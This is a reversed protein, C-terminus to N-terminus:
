GTRRRRWGLLGLGLLGSGLLLMSPPLPTHAILQGNGGAFDYTLGDLYDNDLLTANYYINIADGAPGFINNVVNPMTTVDAGVLRQVYLAGGATADGDFLTITQGEINLSRWAFENTGGTDNDEGVIYFDHETGNGQRGFAFRLRAQGTDWDMTMTSHNEFNGRIRFLDDEHTAQIYGSPNVVLDKQFAQISPDSIYENNNVFDGQWNVNADTTKVTGSNEVDGIVTAARGNVNFTGLGGAFNPPVGSIIIDAQGDYPTGASLSGDCLNYTGVSGLNQALTLTGTISHSGNHHNFIGIGDQGLVENGGVQVSGSTMSFTGDGERGIFADAGISLSGSTMSYCGTSNVLRGVFFSGTVINSGSSMSYDGMGRYGITENGGVVLSGSSMTFTGDGSSLRGLILPGGITLLGSSQTYVGTGFFGVYLRNGVSLNGSSKSYTGHSGANEGLRLDGGISTNGSSQQHVGIGDLGVIENGSTSLAYFPDNITITGGGTADVTLSNFLQNAFTNYSVTQSGAGITVLVDDGTVPEGVPNWNNPNTWLNDPNPGVWQKTDALAPPALFIMVWAAVALLFWWYRTKKIELKM